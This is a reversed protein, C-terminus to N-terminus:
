RLTVGMKEELAKLEAFEDDSLNGQGDAKPTFQGWKSRAVADQYSTGGGFNDYTKIANFNANYTDGLRSMMQDLSLGNVRALFDESSEKETQTLASGFLAHREESSLRSVAVIFDKADQDYGSFENKILAAASSPSFSSLMVQKLMDGADNLQAKSKPSLGNGIKAVRNAKGMIEMKEIARKDLDTNGYGAGAMAKTKAAPDTWDGFNDIAKGNLYATRTDANYAVTHETGDPAVKVMESGKANRINAEQAAKVRAAEIAAASTSDFNAQDQAVKDAAIKANYMPLATAANAMDARAAERQPALEAIQQKGTNRRILNAISGMATKQGKANGTYRPTDRLAAATAQQEDLGALNAKASLGQQMLKQLAELEPNM